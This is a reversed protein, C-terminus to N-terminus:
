GSTLGSKTRRRPKRFVATQKWVTSMMAQIGWNKWYKDGGLLVNRVQCVFWEFQLKNMETVLNKLEEREKNM